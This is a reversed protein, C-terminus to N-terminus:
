VSGRHLLAVIATRAIIKIDFLFSRQRIYRLDMRMWDAFRTDRGGDVQWICTLGPLVRLRQRHWGQCALSEDVPLPRPGVLSMHGLLVNFLQPLEDICSRRLYRGVSTIRPDDAIKFAPGDQESRSRLLAKQADADIVMTRFKWINFIQGDKGERAQKFFVPGRSTAKIALAALLFLPSVLLLLVGSFTIDTLRKWWPTAFEVAFPIPAAEHADQSTRALSTVPEYSPTEEEQETTNENFDGPSYEDSARIVEDDWPYIYIETEINLQYKLGVKTAQNAVVKAGERNTEPCLVCLGNLHIGISDSIRLSSKLENVFSSLDDNPLLNLSIVAFEPNVERRNSRASEKALEMEFQSSSLVELGSSHDSTWNRFLGFWRPHSQDPKSRVIM